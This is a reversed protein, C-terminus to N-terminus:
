RELLANFEHLDAIDALDKTSGKAKLQALLAPAQRIFGHLMLLPHLALAYGLAALESAGAIPSNGGEVLNHVLPHHPFATAIAQMEDVTEPGEVFILDAGTEAYLAARDLTAEL